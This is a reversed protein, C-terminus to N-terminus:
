EHTLARSSDTGGKGEGRLIKNIKLKKKKKM